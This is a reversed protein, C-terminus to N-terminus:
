NTCKLMQFLFVSLLIPLIEQAYILEFTANFNSSCAEMIFNERHLEGLGGKCSSSYLNEHEGGGSMGEQFRRPCKM